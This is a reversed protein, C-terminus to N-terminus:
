SSRHCRRMMVPAADAGSRFKSSIVHWAAFILFNIKFATPKGQDKGGATNEEGM